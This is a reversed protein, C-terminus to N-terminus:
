SVLPRSAEEFKVILKERTISEAVLEVGQVDKLIDKGIKMATGKRAGGSKGVLIIYLNPYIVAHGYRTHVKRQLAGAIMSLGIWTHFSKPPETDKTYELYGTLWDGLQRTAM